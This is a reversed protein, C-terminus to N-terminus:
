DCFGPLHPVELNRTTGGPKVGPPEIDICSTLSTQGGILDQLLKLCEEPLAELKLDVPFRPFKRHIRQEDCLISRLEFKRASAVTEIRM